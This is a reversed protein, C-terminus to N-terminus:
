FFPDTATAFGFDEEMWFRRRNIKEQVLFFHCFAVLNDHKKLCEEMTKAEARLMADVGTFM